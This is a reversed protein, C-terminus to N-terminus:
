HVLWMVPKVMKKLKIPKVTALATDYLAEM